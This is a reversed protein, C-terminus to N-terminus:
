HQQIRPRQHKTVDRVLTIKLKFWLNQRCYEYQWRMEITRNNWCDGMFNM